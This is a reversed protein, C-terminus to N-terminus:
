AEFVTLLNQVEQSHKKIDVLAKAPSKNVMVFIDGWSEFMTTVHGRDSVTSFYNTGDITEKKFTFM